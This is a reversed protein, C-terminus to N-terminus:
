TQTRCHHHPWNYRGQEANGIAQWLRSVNVPLLVAHLLWVPALGLGVGYTLFALNSAIAVIRLPVIDKMCFATAVLASALYGTAELLTM